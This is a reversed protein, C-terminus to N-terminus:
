ASPLRKTILRDWLVSKSEIRAGRLFGPFPVNILLNCNLGLKGRPCGSCEESFAWCDAHLTTPLPWLPPVLLDTIHMWELLCKTLGKQTHPIQQANLNCVHNLSPDSRLHSKTQCTLLEARNSASLARLSYRPQLSNNQFFVHTDGLPRRKLLILLITGQPFDPTSTLFFPTRPQPLLM